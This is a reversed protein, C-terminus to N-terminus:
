TASITVVRGHNSCDVGASQGTAQGEKPAPAAAVALTEGVQAVVVIAEGKTETPDEGGTGSAIAVAGAAMAMGGALTAGHGGHGKGAPSTAGDIPRSSSVGTRLLIRGDEAGDGRRTEEDITIASLTALPPGKSDLKTTTGGVSSAGVAELHLAARGM